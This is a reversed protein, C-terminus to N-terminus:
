LALLYLNFNRFFHSHPWSSSLAKRRKNLRYAERHSVHFISHNISFYVLTSACFSINGQLLKREIHDSHGYLICKWNPVSHDAYCKWCGQAFHGAYEVIFLLIHCAHKSLLVLPIECINTGWNSSPCNSGPTGLCHMSSINTVPYFSSYLPFYM